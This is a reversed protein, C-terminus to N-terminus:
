IKVFKSANDKLWKLTPKSAGIYNFGSTLLVEATHPEFYSSYVRPNAFFCHEHLYTRAVTPGVGINKALESIQRNNKLVETAISLNRALVAKYKNNITQKEKQEIRSKVIKIKRDIENRKQRLLLLAKDWDDLNYKM